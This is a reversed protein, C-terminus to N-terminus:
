AVYIVFHRSIFYIVRFIGTEEFVSVFFASLFLIFINM